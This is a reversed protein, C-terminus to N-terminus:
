QADIRAFLRAPVPSQPTLTVEVEQVEAGPDDPTQVAGTDLSWNDLDGSVWVQYHTVGTLAPNRRTYSFTGASKSLDVTVPNMSGGDVPDLGFVYEFWTSLGDGDPDGTPTLDAGPAVSFGALWTDFDAPGHGTYALRPGNDGAADASTVFHRQLGSIPANTTLRLFVHDGIGNGGDYQANLYAALASSASSNIIGTGTSGNLINTQIRTADTPDPTSTEGYYDGALVEPMTRRGLGYLEVGPPSTSLSDVHFSLTAAVFPNDVVGLNPLQFVFLWVPSMKSVPSPLLAVTEM